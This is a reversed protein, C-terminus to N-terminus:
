SHALPYSPRPPNQFQMLNEDSCSGPESKVAGDEALRTHLCCSGGMEVRWPWFFFFGKGPGWGKLFFSGPPELQYISSFLSEM